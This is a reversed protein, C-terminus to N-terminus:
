ITFKTRLVISFTRKILKQRSAFIITKSKTPSTDKVFLHQTELTLIIKKFMVKHTKTNEKHLKTYCGVIVCLLVFFVSPVVFFFIFKFQGAKQEKGTKKAFM